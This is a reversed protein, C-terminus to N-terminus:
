WPLLRVPGLPRLLLLPDFYSAGRRAGWHLCRAIACGGHSGHLRAIPQGRTVHQGVHVLPVLPEYETRIGDAHVIVVVGRSAVPGAFSVRGAGAALVLGDSAAALDAGRHGAAYPTPPRQFARLVFLRGTIPPQYRVPTSPRAAINLGPTSARGSAATAGPVILITVAAALLAAM